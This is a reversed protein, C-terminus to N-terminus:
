IHILSLCMLMRIEIDMPNNTLRNVVVSNYQPNNIVPKNAPNTLPKTKKIIYVLKALILETANALVMIATKPKTCTNTVM